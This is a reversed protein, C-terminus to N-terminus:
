FCFYEVDFYMEHVGGYTDSELVWTGCADQEIILIDTVKTMRGYFLYFELM